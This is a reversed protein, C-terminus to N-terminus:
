EGVAASAVKAQSAAYFRLQAITQFVSRDTAIKLLSGAAEKLAKRLREIEEKQEGAEAKAEDLLNGREAGRTTLLRVTANAEVLRKRNEEAEFQVAEFQAQTEAHKQCLERHAVITSELEARVQEARVQKAADETRQAAQAFEFSAKRREFLERELHTLVDEPGNMPPQLGFAEDMISKLRDTFESVVAATENRVQVAVDEDRVM